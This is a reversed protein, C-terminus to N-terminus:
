PDLRGDALVTRGDIALRAGRLNLWAWWGLKTTGGVHDNRGILLTLTGLGQDELLPSMSIKPNLGISLTGPRDRGAGARAYSPAFFERGEEYTFRTLRGKVFTWRGGAFDGVTDSLGVSSRVNSRFVGDAAREDLAVTVVGAPLTAMSWARNPSAPPVIGDDLTPTRGRLYLRLDTGNPHTIQLERGRELRRALAQGVQHLKTPDVLTGGILEERWQALDVGYMRASAESARGVAMLVARAGSREAARYMADQFEGLQFMTNRPMAHVRERDSPGFFSVLVDTRELAARRHEGLRALFKPPVESAAAWYTPEDQYLLLPRAGLRLSELVFANASALTESWSEITVHDGGRVRLCKRLVTRALERDRSTGRPPDSMPQHVPDAPKFAAHGTVALDYRLRAAAAGTRIEQRSATWEFPRGGEPYSAVFGAISRAREASSERGPRAARGLQRLEDLTRARWREPRHLSELRVNPHRVSWRAIEPAGQLSPGAALVRVDQSPEVRRQVAGLFRLLERGGSRTTARDNADDRLDRLVETLRPRPWESTSPRSGPAEGSAATNSPAATPSGLVLAVAYDPPRLFVGAVETATPAGTPDPRLPRPEFRTPAIGYAEWVRRVTMHSVGFRRGLARTSQGLRGSAGTSVTARVIRQVTEAPVVGRRPMREVEGAIGRLRAVSFRERWRAVTLRHMGLERAIRLNQAGDAARLAITARRAREPSGRRARSWRLLTEREEASLTLRPAVRM